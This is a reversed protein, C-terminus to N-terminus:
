RRKPKEEVFVLLVGLVAAVIGGAIMVIRAEGWLLGLLVAFVGAAILATGMIKMGAMM